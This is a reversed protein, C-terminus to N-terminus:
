KGHAAVYCVIIGEIDKLQKNLLTEETNRVATTMKSNEADMPLKKSLEIKKLDAKIEFKLEYLANLLTTNM